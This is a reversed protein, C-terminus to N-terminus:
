RGTKKNKRIYEDADENDEEWIDDYRDITRFTRSKSIFVSILFIVLLIAALLFFGLVIGFAIQIVMM